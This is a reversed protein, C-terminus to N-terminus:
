PVWGSTELIVSAQVLNAAYQLNTPPDFDPQLIPHLATTGSKAFDRTNSSVFVCTGAFGAKRLADTVCIAHELIISDKAGKGGKKAPLTSKIVREVARSLADGDKDLLIAADLLDQSLERLRDLLLLANMPLAPIGPMGLFNWSQAVAEVCNIATICDAVAEDVHEQWETPTPCGIVLYVTPPDKTAGKLLEIAAGVTLAAGRNPARIIDLLVCTDLFIFPAPHAQIKVVTDPITPM